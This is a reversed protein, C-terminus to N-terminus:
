QLKGVVLELYGIYRQLGANLAARLAPRIVLSYPDAPPGCHPCETSDRNGCRVLSKYLDTIHGFLGHELEYTDDDLLGNYIGGDSCPSPWAALFAQLNDYDDKTAM